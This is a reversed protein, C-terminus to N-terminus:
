GARVAHAASDGRRRELQALEALLAPPAIGVHELRHRRQNPQGRGIVAGYARAVQSIARDGIAHVAIQFGREDLARVIATLEDTSRHLIGQEHSGQYPQSVAATCGSLSGDAFLKVAGTRARASDSGFGDSTSLQTTCWDYFPMAVVNCPLQGRRDAEGYLTIMEPSALADCSTTLGLAAFDGAGATLAALQEELPLATFESAMKHLSFPQMATEHLVGTPAGAADRDIRGGPPDVSSADLGLQRLAASNVQVTHGSVHLLSLPRTPCVADLEALTPARRQLLRYPALGWGRVWAGAPAADAARALRGLIDDLDGDLPARCDVQRRLICYMALHNHADIFGPALVRGDLDLVRAATIRALDASRGVAVIRGGRVALADAGEPGPRLTARVLVLDADM